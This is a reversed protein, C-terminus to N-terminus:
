YQPILEYSSLPKVFHYDAVGCHPCKVNQSYDSFYNMGHRVDIVPKDCHKCAVRSACCPRAAFIDYKYMTGLQHHSGDWRSKCSRCIIHAGELCNVCVASLYVTKDELYVRMCNESHRQPTLFFTGDILPYKDFVLLHQSCLTCTMYSTTYTSLTALVFARIDDNDDDMRIHYPNLKHKPLVNQFSTYDIRRLLTINPKSAFHVNNNNNNPQTLANMNVQSCSTNSNVGQNNNNNTTLPSVTRGGTGMVNNFGHFNGFTGDSNGKTRNFLETNASGQYGNGNGNYAIPFEFKTSVKRNASRPSLAYDASSPPSHNETSSTSGQRQLQKGNNSVGVHGPLPRTNISPRDGSKKKRRVRRLAEDPNRPPIWDLDKRLHGKGCQCSCAKWALDYGKKTWLNQRRQKESWSRARGSSRLFTLVDDEWINFCERHMYEGNTCEPNNCVVKAVDLPDHINVPDNNLLCGNPASCKVTEDGNRDEGEDNPDDLQQQQERFQRNKQKAREERSYPM